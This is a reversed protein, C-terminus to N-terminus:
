AIPNALTTNAVGSGGIPLYDIKNIIKCGYYKCINCYKYVNIIYETIM